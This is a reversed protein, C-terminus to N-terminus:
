NDYVCVKNFEEKNLVVQKNDNDVKEIIGGINAFSLNKYTKSKIFVIDNAGFNEVDDIEGLFTGDTLVAKKGILDQIYVGNENIILDVESKSAYLLKGKFLMAQEYTDVGSLKVGYGGSVAFIREINHFNAENETKLATLKCIDNPKNMLVTVKIEGRVGQPKNCKAVCIINDM